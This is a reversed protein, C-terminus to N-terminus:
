KKSRAANHMLLIRYLFACFAADKGDEQLAFTLVLFKLPMFIM